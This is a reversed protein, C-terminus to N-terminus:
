HQNLHKKKKNNNKLSFLNKISLTCHRCRGTSRDCSWVSYFPKSGYNKWCLILILRVEMTKILLKTHLFFMRFYNIYHLTYVFFYNISLSIWNYFVKKKKIMNMKRKLHRLVFTGNAAVQVCLTLM